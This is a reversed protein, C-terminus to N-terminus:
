TNARRCHSSMDAPIIVLHLRVHVAAELAGVDDRLIVRWGLHSCHQATIAAGAPPWLPSNVRRGVPATKGHCRRAQERDAENQKLM